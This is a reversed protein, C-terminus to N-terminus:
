GIVQWSPVSACYLYLQVREKVEASSTPPHNVGHWPGKVESFLGTGMTFSAPHIEPGFILAFNDGTLCVSVIRM